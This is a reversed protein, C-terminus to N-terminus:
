ITVVAENIVQDLVQAFKTSLRHDIAIVVQGEFLGKSKIDITDQERGSWSSVMSM